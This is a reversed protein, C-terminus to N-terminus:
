VATEWDFLEAIYKEGGYSDVLFTATGKDCYLLIDRYSIHAAYVTWTNNEVEIKFTANVEGITKIKCSEIICEALSKLKM